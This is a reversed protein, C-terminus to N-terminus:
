TLDYFPLQITFDHTNRESTQHLSNLLFFLFLFETIHVLYCDGTKNKQWEDERNKKKKETDELM